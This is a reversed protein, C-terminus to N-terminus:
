EEAPAETEETVEEAPVEEEAAEEAVVEKVAGPVPEVIRYNEKVIENLAVSVPKELLPEEKAKAEMSIERALKAVGIVLSYRSRKDDSVTDNTPKLM